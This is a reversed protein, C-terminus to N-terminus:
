FALSDNLIYAIVDDYQVRSVFGDNALVKLTKDANIYWLIDTEYVYPNDYYLAAEELTKNLGEASVIDASIYGYRNNERDYFYYFGSQEGVLELIKGNKYTGSKSSSYNPQKRWVADSGTVQVFGFLPYAYNTKKNAKQLLNSYVYGVRGDDLLVRTWDGVKEYTQVYTGNPLNDIVDYMTDPGWRLAAFGDNSYVTRAGTIAAGYTAASNGSTTISVEDALVWGTQGGAAVKVKHWATGKFLIIISTANSVNFVVKRYEGPLEYMPTSKGNSSKIKGYTTTGIPSEAFTCIGMMIVLALVLSLLKKM